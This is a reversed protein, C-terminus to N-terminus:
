VLVLAWRHEMCGELKGLVVRVQSQMTNSIIGAAVHHGFHQLSLAGFPSGMTAIVSGQQQRTAAQLPASAAEASCDLVAIWGPASQMSSDNNAHAGLLWAQSWDSSGAHM